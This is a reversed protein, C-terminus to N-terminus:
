RSRQPDNQLVIPKGHPTAHAARQWAAALADVDELRALGKAVVLEEVARLWCEYYDSGDPASQPDGVERALAEAWEGWSFLGRENLAVALAFAEAEWPEAFVPPNQGGPRAATVRELPNL